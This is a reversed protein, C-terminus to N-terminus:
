VIAKREYDVARLGPIKHFQKIEYAGTVEAPDEDETDGLYLYGGIVVDCDVYVIAKSVIEDGSPTRVLDARDEWRGRMIVPASFDYGGNGNPTAAWYTLIQPHDRKSM